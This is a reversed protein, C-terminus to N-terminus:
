FDQTSHVCKHIKISRNAVNKSDINGKSNRPLYNCLTISLFSFQPLILKKIEKCSLPILKLFM